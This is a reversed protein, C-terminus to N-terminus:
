ASLGPFHKELQRVLIRYRKHQDHEPPVVGIARLGHRCLKEYESVDENDTAKDICAIVTQILNLNLGIHKPYTELAERFVKIAEDYHKQDYHSIGAKTLRAAVKKGLESVPESTISDIRAIIKDNGEYRETLPLLLAVAEHEAGMACLTRAYELTTEISPMPLENYARIANEAVTAAKKSDGKALLLQIEALSAQVIVEPRDHYRKRARDLFTNAQKDITTIEQSKGERIIEAAKRTYNFYDQESEHCSNFGWRVSYQYSKLATDDDQNLEALEGLHRHRLVSKPSIRSGDLVAEQAERSKHQRLYVEGLLDHAEIYRNDQEIIEKLIRAAGELDGTELLAKGLGLQAWVMPKNNLVQAYLAKAEEPKEHALLLQGKLKLCDLSYRSAQQIAEDCLGLARSYKKEAIAQKIEILAMHRIIAKDLRVKLSAQTFPKTIYDDPQCELAGLVMESSAEATIMVFLSTMPVTHTFRVEELIQQGDKGPGLNYDCLVFDYRNQSCLNIAEEGDAATDVSEAGFIRLMRTLSGRIEPFDDIVLCRKDTYIRVIDIQRLEQEANQHLLPNM